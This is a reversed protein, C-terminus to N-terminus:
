RSRLSMVDTTTHSEIENHESVLVHMLLNIRSFAFVAFTIVLNLVRKVLLERVGVFSRKVFTLTVEKLARSHNHSLM